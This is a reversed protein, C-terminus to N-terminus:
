SGAGRKAPSSSNLAIASGDKDTVAFTYLPTTGDDNYLILNGSSGAALELRNTQFKRIIDVNSDVTALNAATALAADSIATDAEANIEAKMATSMGGLDTLGAGAVGVTSALAASDTGRMDTNTTTTGITSNAKAYGTGDYDAELNDAATSDGSIATVDVEAFRNEISFTAIVYGVVSISDVTGTTIVVAYDQGTEYFADASLDILVNNLGTVSDFDVALTVGAATETATASGKYVKVAPTGSLTTPVGTADVTHFKFNLTAYDEEYDGLYKM